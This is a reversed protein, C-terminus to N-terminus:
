HYKIHFNSNPASNKTLFIRNKSSGVNSSESNFICLIYLLFNPVSPQRQVKGHIRFVSTRVISTQSYRSIHNQFIIDSMFTYM